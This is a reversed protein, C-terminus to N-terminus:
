VQALVHMITCIVIFWYLELTAWHSAFLGTFIADKSAARLV